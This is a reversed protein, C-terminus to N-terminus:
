GFLKACGFSQLLIRSIDRVVTPAIELLFRIFPESHFLFLLCKKRNQNCDSDSYEDRDCLAILVAM